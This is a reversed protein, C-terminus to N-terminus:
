SIVKLIVMTMDDHQITNGTFTKVRDQITQLLSDADENDSFSLLSTLRTEGFEENKSNMAETFGDTYFALIDGSQLTIQKEEIIRDFIDGKELGLAIGNPCLRETKGSQTQRTLVPNHGARAFTFIHTELDVIGYVMSIFHDREVNEYFLKNIDKLVQKPSFITKAISRLFGKTLTMYFAASIGKGSVDGIAIGLKQRGLKIFDFYDGGVDMAPICLSAVDIGKIDPKERPLFSLQVRRAIELERQFRERELIKNVYVPTFINLERSDMKHKYFWAALILLILPILLLFGSNLVYVRHDFHYLMTANKLLYFTFFGILLTLFDYKILIYAFVSGIVFHQLFNLYYHQTPFYADASFLIGWLLGILSVVWLRHGLYKVLFSALFLVLIYQQWITSTYGGIFSKLFPSWTNILDVKAAIDTLDSWNFCIAIRSFLIVLGLLLGAFAFGRFVALSFFRHKIFGKRLADLTNLKNDWIERAMSDACAAGILVAISSVIGLFVMGIITNTLDVRSTSAELLVWLANALGMSIAIPSVYRLGLGDARLKKISMIIFVIGIAVVGLFFPIIAIMRSLNTSKVDPLEYERQFRGVRDGVIDINLQVPITLIPESRDYEVSYDIRHDHLVQKIRSYRFTSSDAGLRAALTSDALRRAQESTLNVITSDDSADIRYGFENAAQDFFLEIQNIWAPVASSQLSDAISESPTCSAKWYYFRLENLHKKQEKISFRRTLFDILTKRAQFEVHITYGCAAYGMEQLSEAAIDRIEEKSYQVDIASNIFLRPYLLLYFVLGAIGLLFLLSETAKSAHKM